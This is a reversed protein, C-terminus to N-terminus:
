GIELNQTILHGRIVTSGGFTILSRDCREPSPKRIKWALLAYGLELMVNPNPLHKSEGEQPPCKGVYSVDAVFVDAVRIKDLITNAIDPIGPIDKTDKDLRPSSQVKGSKHLNKFAQELASEIFNRNDRSPSDSQWAYFVTLEEDSM